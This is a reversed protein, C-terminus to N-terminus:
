RAVSPMRVASVPRRRIADIVVLAAAATLGLDERMGLQM